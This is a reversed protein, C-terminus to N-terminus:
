NVYSVLQISGEQNIILSDFGILWGKIHGNPKNGLECTYCQGCSHIKFRFGTVALNDKSNSKINENKFFLLCFLLCILELM